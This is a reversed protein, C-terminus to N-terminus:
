RWYDRVLDHGSREEGGSLAAVVETATRGGYLPAILPQLITVTGDFARADGWSELYHADPVHWHCLVAPEDRYLGHPIPLRVGDLREAFRLDVPATAVPNAGLVILVEVAGREMDEVLAALSAAQDTPEAEVPDTYVVTRGINGLAHNMAHALAHVVPPQQE